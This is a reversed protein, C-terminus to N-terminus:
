VELLEPNEYINGIVELEESPEQLYNIWDYRNDPCDTYTSLEDIKVIGIIEEEDEYAGLTYNDFNEFFYHMKVIDGEYIDKGNKDKLGTYQMLEFRNIYQSTNHMEDEEYNAVEWDTFAFIQGNFSLAIRYQGFSKAGEQLFNFIMKNQTKDWARFKIDRM